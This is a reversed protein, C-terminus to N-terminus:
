GTAGVAKNARLAQVQGTVRAIMSIAVGKPIDTCSWM